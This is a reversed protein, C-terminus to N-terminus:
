AVEVPIEPFFHPIEVAASEPSDSAHVANNQVDTAYLARVTGPAAQRPDTAGIFKRLAGIADERELVMPICPGSTMFEVLDAFFPRAKHVAYFRRASEVTLTEMRLAALRFGGEGELMALIRGASRARVADPKIILLTREIAMTEESQPAAAPKNTL